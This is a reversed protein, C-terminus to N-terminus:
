RRRGRRRAAAVEVARGDERVDGVFAADEGLLDEARDGRDDAEVGLLLRDRLGVRALVAQDPVDERAVEVAGQADGLREVGAHDPEILAHRRVRRSRKAPDLLGPEPRSPPASPISSYRDTLYTPIPTYPPTLFRWSGPCAVRILEM